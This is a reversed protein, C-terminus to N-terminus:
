CVAGVLARDGLLIDKLTTHSAAIDMLKSKGAAGISNNGIKLRRLTTNETTAAALIQVGVPGINNGELGLYELTQNCMLSSALAKVGVLQYAIDISHDARINIVKGSFFTDGKAYRARVEGGGRLDGGGVEFFEPAVGKEQSPDGIRNWSLELSSLCSNAKLMASLLLMGNVCINNQALNLHKLKSGGTLALSLTEVGTDELRNGSLNLNELSICHVLATSLADAGRTHIRNGCLNLEVLSRTKTHELEGQMLESESYSLDFTTPRAADIYAPYYRSGGKFCAEVKKGKTFPQNQGGTEKSAPWRILKAPVDFEKTQPRGDIFHRFADVELESYVHEFREGALMDAVVDSMPAGLKLEMLPTTFKKTNLIIILSRAIIEAGADGLNNSELNLRAIGRNHELMSALAEAGISSIYNGQLSLDTLSSNTELASAFSQLGKSLDSLSPSSARMVVYSEFIDIEEMVFEPRQKMMPLIKELSYGLELKHLFDQYKAGNEVDIPFVPDLSKCCIHNFSLDLVRLTSNKKLASGIAQLGADETHSNGILNRALILATISKNAVLLSSMAKSAATNICNSSLNLERCTRNRELAAALKWAGVSGIRNRSLDVSVVTRNSRLATAFAQADLDTMGRGRLDVAALSEDSIHLRGLLRRHRIQQYGEMLSARTQIRAFLRILLRMSRVLFDFGFEHVIWGTYNEADLNGSDFLRTKEKFASLMRPDVAQVASHLADCIHALETGSAAAPLAKAPPAAQDSAHLEPPQLRSRFQEVRHGKAAILAVEMRKAAAAPSDQQLEM